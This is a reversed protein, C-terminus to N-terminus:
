PAAPRASQELSTRRRRLILGGLVLAGFAGEGSACGCGISYRAPGSTTGGGGSDGGSGGGATASGGGSGGASGGSTGGGDGGAAGGAVGGASGGAAGGASGGAVGGASGGAAGGASGGAAGGASGGATGGASGGAAGGASGGAVGGAAGGASGGSTGGGSAGGAASGGASGGGTVVCSGALCQGSACRWSETCPAGQADGRYVRLQAQQANGAAQRQGFVFATVGQTAALTPEGAIETGLSVNLPAGADLGTETSLLRVEVQRTRPLSQVMLVGGPAPRLDYGGSGLHSDFSCLQLPAGVVVGTVALASTVHYDAFAVVYTTPGAAAVVPGFGIGPSLDQQPSVPVGAGDISVGFVRADLVATPQQWAVFGASPSAFAVSPFRLTTSAVRASIESSWGGDALEGRVVLEHRGVQNVVAAFRFRVGDFAPAPDSLEAHVQPASLGGDAEVFASQAGLDSTWVVLARGAGAACLPRTPSAAQPGLPLPSGLLTGNPSFRQLTASSGGPTPSAWVVLFGPPLECVDLLHHSARETSFVEGPLVGADSLDSSFTEGRLLPRGLSNTGVWWLGGRLPALVPAGLFLTPARLRAVLTTGDFQSFESGLRGEVGLQRGINLVGPAAQLAITSPVGADGDLLPRFSLGTGLTLLGDVDDVTVPVVAGGSFAAASRHIRGRTGLTGLFTSGVFTSTPVLSAALTETPLTFAVLWGGDAQPAHSSSAGYNTPGVPLDLGVPSFTMADFRRAVVNTGIAFTLLVLGGNTSLFPAQGVALSMPAGAPSLGGTAFDLAKAFISDDKMWAILFQGGGLATVTPATSGLGGVLIGVPDLSSGTPTLRTAMVVKESFRADQWVLVSGSADSAVAPALAGGWAGVQTGVPLLAVQPDFGGLVMLLATVM